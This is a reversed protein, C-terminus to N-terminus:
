LVTQLAARMGGSSILSLKESVDKEFGPLRTLDAGWLSEDRLVANVIKEASRKKWLDSLYGAKDDQILYEKGNATGYYESGKAESKMFCIFAAFGLAFLSPVDSKQEYHKLLIPLDRMKMKSSYQLTISLWKHQIFPNRFRDLITRGYSRAEDVSLSPGSIAPALEQMMLTEIFGSLAKDKMGEKVTEIGALVGIGSSLTHTGNLLRLKLERYKTIDPAIVIGKDAKAFSLTEAVRQHAAEIAWLSYPESLIALDDAYDFNRDTDPLKGPVIRDVLSSCFHNAESIWKIFATDLQNQKALTLVIDKLKQGNDVILETPVIVFGPLGAAYRAQLIALLKGPFSTPPKATIKDGDLLAIGVETTNSVIVEIDPNIACKMIEEWESRASLVRSISSNVITQDVTKGEQIGRVVHTYLGDQEQFEDAGGKDTSKIVVVKGNFTGQRNAKDIFYDILGRLLIGTGFQLVKEPLNFVNSPPVATGKPFEIEQLTHKTLKM